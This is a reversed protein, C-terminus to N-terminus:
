AAQRAWTALQSEARNRRQRITAAPYGAEAATAATRTGGIRHEIILRAGAPQLYGDRLAGAILDLLEDAAHTTPDDVLQVEEDARRVVEARHRRAFMAERGLARRVWRITCPGPRLSAHPFRVIRDLAAAVAVAAAEDFTWVGVYAGAARRLAPFVLWIAALQAEADTQALRDLARQIDDRQDLDSASRGLGRAATALEDLNAFPALVPEARQWRALTAQGDLSAALARWQSDVASLVDAM